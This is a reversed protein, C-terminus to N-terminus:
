NAMPGKITPLRGTVIRFRGQLNNRQYRQMASEAEGTTPWHSVMKWGGSRFQEVMKTM